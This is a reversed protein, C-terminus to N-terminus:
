RKYLTYGIAIKDTETVSSAIEVLLSTNFRIPYGQNSVGASVTSGAAHIGLGAASVSSSTADFVSTGDVTVKLRVTRATADQTHVSLFPVDGSGSVSLVTALTNATLAGSLVEKAGAQRLGVAVTTATGGSSYTNVISTTSPNSLGLSATNGAM